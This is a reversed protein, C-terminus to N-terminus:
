VCVLIVGLSNFWFFFFHLNKDDSITFLNKGVTCFMVSAHPRPLASEFRVSYGCSKGVEEGREFSVREAVSM